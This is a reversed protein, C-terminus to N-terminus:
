TMSRSNILDNIHQTPNACNSGDRDGVRCPMIIGAMDPNSGTVTVQSAVDNKNISIYVVHGCARDKTSLVKALRLLLDADLVVTIEERGVAPVVRRYSPYMYEIQTATGHIGDGATLTNGDGSYTITSVGAKAKKSSFKYIGDRPESEGAKSVAIIKGDTSVKLGNDFHVGTVTPRSDCKSAVTQMKLTDADITITKM